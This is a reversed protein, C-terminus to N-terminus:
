VDRLEPQPLDDPFFQRPSAPDFALVNQDLGAPSLAVGSLNWLKRAVENPEPYIEDDRSTGYEHLGGFGRCRRDRDNERHVGIGYLGAV